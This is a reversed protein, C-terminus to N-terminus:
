LGDPRPALTVTLEQPKGERSVTVTVTDGVEHQYLLDIVGTDADVTDGDVAIIVDGPQM